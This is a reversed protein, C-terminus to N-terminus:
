LNNYLRKISFYHAPSKPSGQPWYGSPLAENLHIGETPTNEAKLSRLMEKLDRFYGSVEGLYSKATVPGHGPLVHAIDSGEWAELAGVWANIDTDPEGFYPSRESQVLDGLAVCNERPIHISSSCASHGGHVKFAIGKSEYESEVWITPELFEGEKIGERIYPFNNEMRSLREENFDSAM